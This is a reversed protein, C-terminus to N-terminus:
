WLDGRYDGSHTSIAYSNSTDTVLPQRGNSNSVRCWEMEIKGGHTPSSTELKSSM